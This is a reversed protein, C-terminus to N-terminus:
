RGAAIISRRHRWADAFDIISLLLADSHLEAANTNTFGVRRPAWEHSSCTSFDSTREGCLYARGPRVTHAGRTYGHCIITYAYLLVFAFPTADARVQVFFRLPCVRARAIAHTFATLPGRCERARSKKKGRGRKSLNQNQVPCRHRLRSFHFSLRTPM